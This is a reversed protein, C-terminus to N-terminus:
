LEVAIFTFKRLRTMELDVRVSYQFTNELLFHLVQFNIVVDSNCNGRINSYDLIESIKDSRVSDTGVLKKVHEFIRSGISHDWLICQKINRGLLSNTPWFDSVFNRIEEANEDVKKTIDILCFIESRWERIQINDM